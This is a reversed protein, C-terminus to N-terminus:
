VTIFHESIPLQWANTLEIELSWGLARTGHFQGDETFFVFRWSIGCVRQNETFKLENLKM